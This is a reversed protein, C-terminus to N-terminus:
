VIIQARLKALARHLRVSVVNESIGLINGIEGPSFGELCRMAVVTRYHDPLKEIERKARAALLEIDARAEEEERGGSAVHADLTGEEDLEELSAAKKRRYEDVILNNLVKFLFSKYNKVEGGSRVFDWAKLFTDQVLEVARERDALRLSAHRALANSYREFGELFAEEFNQMARTHLRKEERRRVGIM